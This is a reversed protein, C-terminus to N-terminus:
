PTLMVTRPASAGVEQVREYAEGDGAVTPTTTVSFAGMPNGNSGDETLKITKKYGFRGRVRAYEEEKEAFHKIILPQPVDPPAEATPETSAVRRVDHEPAPPKQPGQSEQGRVMGVFIGGGLVVCIAAARMMVGIAVAIRRLERVRKM